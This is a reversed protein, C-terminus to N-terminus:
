VCSFTVKEDTESNSFDSDTINSDLCLDSCGVSGAAEASENEADQELDSSNPPSPTNDNEDSDNNQSHSELYHLLPIIYYNM